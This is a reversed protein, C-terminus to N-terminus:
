FLRLAWAVLLGAATGFAGLAVQTGIPRGRMVFYSCVAAFLGTLFPLLPSDRLAEARGGPMADSGLMRGLYFNLVGVLLGFAVAIIVAGAPGVGLKPGGREERNQSAM